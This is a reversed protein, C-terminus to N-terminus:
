AFIRRRALAGAVIALGLLALTGPEPTEQPPLPNGTGLKLSGAGNQGVNQMRVFPSCAHQENGSCPNPDANFDAIVPFAGNPNLTFEISLRAETFYNPDAALGQTALPNYLAGKVTSPNGPNCNSTGLLFDLPQNNAKPDRVWNQADSCPSASNGINALPGNEAFALLNWSGITFDGPNTFSFGFGTIGPANPGSVGNELTTPSTNNLLVLITGAGVEIHMTASGIGGASEGSFTFDYVVAASATTGLAAAALAALLQRIKVIM